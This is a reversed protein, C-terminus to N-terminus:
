AKVTDLPRFLWEGAQTDFVAYHALLRHPNCSPHVLRSHKRRNV